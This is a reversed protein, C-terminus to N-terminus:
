EIGIEDWQADNLLQRIQPRTFTEVPDTSGAHDYEGEDFALYISWAPEVYPAAQDNVADDTMMAFIANMVRDGDEYSMEGSQFRKAVTLAVQNYMDTMQIGQAECYSEGDARSIRGKAAQQIISELHKM